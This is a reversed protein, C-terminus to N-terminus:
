MIQGVVIMTAAGAMACKVRHVHHIGETFIAIFTVALIIASVLMDNNWILEEM